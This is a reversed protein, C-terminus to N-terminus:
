VSSKAMFEASTYQRTVYAEIVIHTFLKGLTTVYFHFPQFDFRKVAVGIGRWM